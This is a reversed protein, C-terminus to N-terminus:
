HRAVQLKSLKSSSRHIKTTRKYKKPLNNNNSYNAEIQLGVFAKFASFALFGFEGM